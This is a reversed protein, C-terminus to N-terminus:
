SGDGIPWGHALKELRPRWAKLAAGKALRPVHDALDIMV